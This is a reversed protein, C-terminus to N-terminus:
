HGFLGLHDTLGDTLDGVLPVNSTVGAVTDHVADVGPLSPLAPAAPLAPLNHTVDPLNVPLQPLEVPLQPLGHGLDGLDPLGLGGLDGLAPLGHSVDPLSPTAPLAPLNVPLDTPLGVPLDPLSLSTPDALGDALMGAGQNLLGGSVDSGDTIHQTLGATGETLMGSFTHAGGTVVGAVTGTVLDGGKGITNSDLGSLHLEGDFGSTGGEFSVSGDGLPSTWSASGAVGDLGGALEFSGTPGHPVAFEGHAAAGGDTTLEGGGSFGGDPVAVSGWAAGGTTNAWVAGEVGSASAFDMVLPVADLVDQPMVDPLGAANLAHVPDLDFAKQLGADSLLQLVFGHLTADPTQLHHEEDDFRYDPV